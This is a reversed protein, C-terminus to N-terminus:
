PQLMAIQMRSAVVLGSGADLFVERVNNSDVSEHSVDAYPLQLPIIFDHDAINGYMHKYKKHDPLHDKYEPETLKNARLVEVSFFAICVVLLLGIAAGGVSMLIIPVKGDMGGTYFILGLVLLPAGVYAVPVSVCLPVKFWRERKENEKDWVSQKYQPM